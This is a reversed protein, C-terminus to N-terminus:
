LGLTFTTCASIAHCTASASSNLRVFQCPRRQVDRPSSRTQIPRIVVGSEQKSLALNETLLVGVVALWLVNRSMDACEVIGFRVDRQWHRGRSEQINRYTSEKEMAM